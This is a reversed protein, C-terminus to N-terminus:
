FQIKSRAFTICNLKLIVILIVILIVFIKKQRGIREAEKKDLEGAEIKELEDILENQRKYFKREKKNKISKLDADSKKFPGLKGVDLTWDDNQHDHQLLEQSEIDVERTSM